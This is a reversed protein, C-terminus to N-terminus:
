LKEYKKLRHVFIEKGTAQDKFYFGIGSEEKRTVIGTKGNFVVLTNVDPLHFWMEYFRLKENAEAITTPYNGYIEPPKPERGYRKPFAEHIYAVYPSDCKAFEDDRLEYNPVYDKSAFSGVSIYSGDFGMKRWTDRGDRITEYGRIPICPVYGNEITKQYANQYAEEFPVGANIEDIFLKNELRANTKRLIFSPDKDKFRKEFGPIDIGQPKNAELIFFISFNIINWVVLSIGTNISNPKIGTISYFIVTEIFPVLLVDRLFLLVM